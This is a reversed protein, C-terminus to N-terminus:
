YVAQLAQSYSYHHESQLTKIVKHYYNQKLLTLKTELKTYIINSAPYLSQKSFDEVAFPHVTPMTIWLVVDM